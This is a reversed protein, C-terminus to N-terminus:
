LNSRKPLCIVLSVDFKVFHVLTRDGTFKVVTAGMQHSPIMTMFQNFTFPQKM